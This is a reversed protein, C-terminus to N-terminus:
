MTWEDHVIGILYWTNGENEFVLRLSKWDMGEFQPDFGPFNYEVLIANPYVDFVNNLSNGQGIIRNFSINKANAFDQDYVFRTFYEEFTLEIPFGSGDYTGWTHKEQDTIINRLADSHFILNQDVDVFAYPSFRVGKRPHIYTSLQPFSRTKLASIVKEVRDDIITKAEEESYKESPNTNKESPIESIQWFYAIGIIVIATIAGFIVKSHATM